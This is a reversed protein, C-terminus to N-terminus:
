NEYVVVGDKLINSYYGPVSSLMYFEDKPIVYMSVLTDYEIDLEYTLKSIKVREKWAKERLVDALIAFDIDSDSTNDGRAYSGYLIIKDLKDELVTKAAKVVENKITDLEHQNCMEIDETL